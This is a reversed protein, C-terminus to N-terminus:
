GDKRFIENESKLSLLRLRIRTYFVMSFKKQRYFNTCIEMLNKSKNNQM